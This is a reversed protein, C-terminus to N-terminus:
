AVGGHLGFLIWADTDVKLATAVGTRANLQIQGVPIYAALASVNANTTVPKTYAM